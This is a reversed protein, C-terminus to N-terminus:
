IDFSMTRPNTQIVIYRSPLFPVSMRCVLVVLMPMMQMVFVDGTNAVKIVLFGFLLPFTMIVEEEVVVVFIDWKMVPYLKFAAADDSFLLSIMPKPNSSITKNLSVFSVCLM